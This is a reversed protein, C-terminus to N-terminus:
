TLVPWPLVSSEALDDTEMQIWTEACMVCQGISVLNGSISAEQPISWDALQSSRFSDSQGAINGTYTIICLSIIFFTRGQRIMQRIRFRHAWGMCQENNSLLLIYKSEKVICKIMIIYGVTRM